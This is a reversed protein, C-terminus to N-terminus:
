SEAISLEYLTDEVWSWEYTESYEAREEWHCGDGTCCEERLNEKTSDRKQAKFTAAEQRSSM